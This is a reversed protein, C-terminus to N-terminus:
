PKPMVPKPVTRRKRPISGARPNSADHSEMEKEAVAGLLHYQQIMYDQDVSPHDDTPGPSRLAEQTALVTVGAAAIAGAAAAVIRARRGRTHQVGVTCDSTIVTGDARKFLSVCLPGQREALLFEAEKRTMASLNYVHKDCRHCFRVPDDGPMAHWAADCPSAIRATELLPLRRADRYPM